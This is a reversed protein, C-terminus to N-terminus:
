ETRVWMLTTTVTGTSGSLNTVTYPVSASGDATFGDVLPSLDAGLVSATSVWELLLGHDGTPDTGVARSVDADRKATSTYIRVRAAKDTQIQMLRYGAAVTVTGTAAANNALSSTTWAATSRVRLGTPGEVLISFATDTTGGPVAGSGELFTVPFSWWTGQDTAAGTVTYQGYRSADTKHQLRLTDGTKIGALYITVDANDGKQQNVNVQTAAAWTSANIGIQKATGASSTSTTWNWTATYIANTSGPPGPV